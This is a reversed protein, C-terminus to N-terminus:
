AAGRADNPPASFLMARRATFNFAFVLGATPIKALAPAFGFTDVFVYILGENIMLGAVGIAFFAALEEAPRLRRRDAFVFRVSSLYVLALGSCFGIAAAVLYPVGLVNHGLLLIGYDLALAAASVFGYKVLDDVLRSLRRDRAVVALPSQADAAQTM